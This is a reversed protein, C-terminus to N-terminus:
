SGSAWVRRFCSPVLRQFAAMTLHRQLSPREIYRGFSSLLWLAGAIAALATVVAWGSRLASPALHHLVFYTVLFLPFHAIYLTYSYDGAARLVRWPASRGVLIVMVGFLVSVMLQFVLWGQSTDLTSLIHDSRSAYGTAAVLAGAAAAVAALTTNSTARWRHALAGVGFAAFSLTQLDLASRNADPWRLSSLYLVLLAAALARWPWKRGLAVSAVLGAIVYLRIEYTLSWLPGNLWRGTLEGSLCLTALAWLQGLPDTIFFERAAGPARVFYLDTLWLVVEAVFTLAIIALLPPAIRFLRALFYETPKFTGFRRTNAAISLTIVYGSLCYFALVAGRAGLGFVYSGLTLAGRDLPHVFIQWSHACVVVVSLAGRLSDLSQLKASSEVNM